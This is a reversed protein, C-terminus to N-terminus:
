AQGSNGSLNFFKIKKNIFAKFAEDGLVETDEWLGLIFRAPGEFKAVKCTLIFTQANITEICRESLPYEELLLNCARLNLKINVTHNLPGTNRFIDTPMYDHLAKHEWNFPTPKIDSIRSIKFQRNGQKEIDYCWILNLSDSIKFPEVLRNSITQSNGSHYNILLVQKKNNIASILKNLVNDGSQKSLQYTFLERDFVKILKQKLNNVRPVSVDLRDIAKSLIYAEEDSIHFLKTFWENHTQAINLQYRGGTNEIAFGLAKLTKLYEYFTSRKISIAELCEDLTRGFPYNLYFLLKLVKTLPKDSM